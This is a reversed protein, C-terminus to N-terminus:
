FGLLLGLVITSLLSATAVLISRKWEFATITRVIIADFAFIWAYIAIQLATNFEYFLSIS